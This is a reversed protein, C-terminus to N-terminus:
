RQVLEAVLRSSVHKASGRRRVPAKAGPRRRMWLLSGGLLCAALVILGSGPLAPVSAPLSAPNTASPSFSFSHVVVEVGQGNTPSRGNNLWLNMHVPMPSQSIAMSPDAPRYTWSNIVNASSSAPQLGSMTAFAINTPAWTFRSTTAPDTGLVLRYHSQGLLPPTVEVNPFVTWWGNDGTTSGFRAYEIDFEHTGDPGLATPGYVFLGLVVNPDLQDVATQVQWQFTGFGFTVNTWIEACYWTGGVDTISLHLDGNADVFANAPSWDNPGPNLGLRSKVNWELGSWMITTPAAVGGDAAQAWAFSASTGWAIAALVVAATTGIRKRTRM